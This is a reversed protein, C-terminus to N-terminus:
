VSFDIGEGYWVFKAKKAGDVDRKDGKNRMSVIKM